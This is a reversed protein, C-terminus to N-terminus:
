SKELMDRPVPFLGLEYATQRSLIASDLGNEAQYRRLAGKTDHDMIATLKGNFYGRAKLARQLSVILDANMEDECPTDFWEISRERIIRHITQHQYTPPAIQRGSPSFKAPAILKKETVTEYIAPQSIKARCAEQEPEPENVNIGLTQTSLACASFLIPSLTLLLPAVLRHM